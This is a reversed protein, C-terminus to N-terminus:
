KDERQLLLFIIPYEKTILIFLYLWYRILYRIAGPSSDKKITIVHSKEENKM